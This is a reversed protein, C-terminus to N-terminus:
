GPTEAGSAKHVPYGGADVSDAQVKRDRHVAIDAGAHDVAVIVYTPHLAGHEVVPVVFPLTSVRVVPNEIPRILHENLLVGDASAVVGRGSRGVAPPTDLIARQLVGVVDPSAGQQELDDRIARWKLERQAAADETDHSDDYYASAFPGKSETLTRFSEAHM